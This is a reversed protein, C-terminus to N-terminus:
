DQGLFSRIADTVARTDGDFHCHHGGPVEVVRLNRVLRAREAIGARQALLGERARILLALTDLAALTAHVQEESMMLPSPHRLRSDTRWVYGGDVSQMNRPVLTLAAEHSLPSFGGERARAAAALDPYVVARGPGRLRRSIAQRLQPVTDAVPRSIAGLSDIMVLRRVKEPFAAAYLASVIGGLSHGVLDVRSGETPSFHTQVLEALDAVYDTLWYSQGPPRHGSHGHGALDVAHVPGLEALSPALRSFSLCNDLWGHLMLVPTADPDAEPIRWSLGALEIQALPWVTEQAALRVPSPMSMDM